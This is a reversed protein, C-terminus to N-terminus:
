SEGEPRRRIAWPPLEGALYSAVASAVEPGDIDVTTRAVGAALAVELPQGAIEASLRKLRALAEPNLRLLHKLRTALTRALDESREDVLGLRVAADADLTVGSIALWRARALGMREGLVPLIVAPVLGFYLETLVFSAAPGVIALDCAAVLGVGGGSCAGDVLCVVVARLGRLLGICRAFRAVGEARSTSDGSTLGRLDMGRCFEAGGKSTIILVRCAPDSDARRLLAEFDAVGRGGIAVEGQEDPMLTVRWVPTELDESRLLM